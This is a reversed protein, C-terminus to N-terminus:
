KKGAPEINGTRTEVEYAIPKGEFVVYKVEVYSGVIPRGKDMDIKTDEVVIFTNGDVVWQGIYGKEPLKEINGWFIKKALASSTFCLLAVFILMIAAIKKKMKFEREESIIRCANRAALQGSSM